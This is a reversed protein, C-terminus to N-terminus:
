SQFAARDEPDRRMSQMVLVSVLVTIRVRGAIAAQPRMHPPDHSPSSQRGIFGCLKERINGVKSFVPEVNPNALPM